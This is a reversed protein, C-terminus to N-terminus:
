VLNKENNQYSLIMFINYVDSLLKIILCHSFLLYNHSIIEFFWNKIPKIAFDIFINYLAKQIKGMVKPLTAGLMSEVM